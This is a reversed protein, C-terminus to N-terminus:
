RQERGRIDIGYLQRAPRGSVQLFGPSCRSCVGGCICEDYLRSGAHRQRYRRDLTSAVNLAGSSWTADNATAAFMGQNGAAPVTIQKVNGTNNSPNSEVDQGNSNAIAGIYYTGPALNGPLSASIIQHDYYGSTGDPSLSGVRTTALLTDATTITSDNSLSICTTSAPAAGPGLNFDTLYVTDSGGAAVTTSSLDV